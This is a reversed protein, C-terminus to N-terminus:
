DTQAPEEDAPTHFRSLEGQVTTLLQSWSEQFKEVGETELQATVETYSVDLQELDAWM